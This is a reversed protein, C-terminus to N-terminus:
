ESSEILGLSIINLEHGCHKEDNSAVAVVMGGGGGQGHVVVWREPMIEGKSAVRHMSAPVQARGGSHVRM